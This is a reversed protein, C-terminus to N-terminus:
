VIGAPTRSEIDGNRKKRYNTLDDIEKAVTVFANFRIIMDM